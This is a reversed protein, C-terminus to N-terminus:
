RLYFVPLRAPLAVTQTTASADGRAGLTCPSGQDRAEAPSHTHLDGGLGGDEEHRKEVALPWVRWHTPRVKIWKSKHSHRKHLLKLM